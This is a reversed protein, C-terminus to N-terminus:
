ETFEWAVQRRTECCVDIIDRELLRVEGLLSMSASGGVFQNFVCGDGCVGAIAFSQIEGSKARELFEEAAKVVTDDAEKRIEEIM